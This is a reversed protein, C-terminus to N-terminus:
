MFGTAFLALVGKKRSASLNLKYIIPIPIYAICADVIINDVGIMLGPIDIYKSWPGRVGWPKGIPPGSMVPRIIIAAFLPLALIATVIIQWRVKPIHGFIRYYMALMCLKGLFLTSANFIHQAVM